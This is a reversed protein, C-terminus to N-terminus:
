VCTIYMYYNAYRYEWARDPMIQFQEIVVTNVSIFTADETNRSEASSMNQARVTSPSGEAYSPSSEELDVPLRNSAVSKTPTSTLFKVHDTPVNDTGKIPTTSLNTSVADSSKHLPSPIVLGVNIIGVKRVAAIRLSPM